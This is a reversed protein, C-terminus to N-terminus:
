REHKGEWTQFESLTPQHIWHSMSRYELLPQSQQTGPFWAAQIVQLSVEERAIGCPNTKFIGKSGNIHLVAIWQLAENKLLYCLIPYKIRQHFGLFQHQWWLAAYLRHTCSLSLKLKAPPRPPAKLKSISLLTLEQLSFSHYMSSAFRWLNTNGCYSRPEAFRAASRHPKTWPALGFAMMGHWSLEAKLESHCNHKDFLSRKNLAAM